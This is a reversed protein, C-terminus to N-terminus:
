AHVPPAWAWRAPLSIPVDISQVRGNLPDVTYQLNAHPLHATMGEYSPMLCIRTHLVPATRVAAAHPAFALRKGGWGAPLLGKNVM